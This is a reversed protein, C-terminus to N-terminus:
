TKPTSEEWAKTLWKAPLAKSKHDKDYGLVAEAAKPHGHFCVIAAGQPRRPALWKNLPYPWCCNRKFSVVLPKPYNALMDYKNAVRSTYSQESGGCFDVMAEPDNAMERYLFGHQSPDFRIVSGEGLTPPSTRRSFPPAMCVKGTQFDFLPDIDGTIVVDLDLFLLPGLLGPILDPRFVGIKRLAGNTKTARSAAEQMAKEFPENELPICCVEPSIGKTSDTVCYLKIPLRSHLKLGSHLRNVDDATYATQGWKICICNRM